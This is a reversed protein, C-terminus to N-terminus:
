EHWEEMEAIERACDNCILYPTVHDTHGLAEFSALEALRLGTDFDRDNTFDKIAGCYQCTYEVHETDKVGVM